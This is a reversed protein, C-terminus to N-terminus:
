GLLQCYSACNITVGKVFFDFTIPGKMDWFVDDKSVVAGPVKEKCHTEM